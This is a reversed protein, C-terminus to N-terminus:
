LREENYTLCFKVAKKGASINTYGTTSHEPDAIRQESWPETGPLPRVTPTPMRVQLYITVTTDKEVEGDITVGSFSNTLSVPATKVGNTTSFATWTSGNHSYRFWERDLMEDFEEEPSERGYYTESQKIYFATSTLKNPGSHSFEVKAHYIADPNVAGTAVTDIAYLYSPSVDGMFIRDTVEESTVAGQKSWDFKIKM